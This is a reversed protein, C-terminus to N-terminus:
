NFGEMQERKTRDIQRALELADLPENNYINIVDGESNNVNMTKDFGKDDFQTQGSMGVYAFNNYGYLSNMSLMVDKTERLTNKMQFLLDNFNSFVNFLNDYTEKLNTFFDLSKSNVNSVNNSINVDSELSPVDVDSIKDIDKQIANIALPMAASVGESIGSPIWHGVENRFVRSPSNIGLASKAGDVIGSFFSNIKGKFWGAMANVGDWVGRVIDKGISLMKGPISKATSVIADIMNNVAQRGKTPLDTVFQQAATLANSIFERVRGPLRTFFEVVRSLFDSGAQRGKDAVDTAWSSINNYASRIFELIKGPLQIFFEIVAGLFDSGMQKAKEYTEVAWLGISTITEGLFFGIKYPLEEFWLIIAEIGAAIREPVSAFFDLIGNWADVFFQKIGEWIEGFFEAIPGWFANWKEKFQAFFEVVVDVITQVLTGLISVLANWTDEFIGKVAEWLACWDGTFVATLIDIVGTIMNGAWEIIDVIISWAGEFIPALLACLNNWEMKILQIIPQVSEWLANFSEMFRDVFDGVVKKLRDWTDTMSQRFEENNDWLNKFALVLAAIIGIIIGIPGALATLAAKFIGVKGTAAAVVTNKTGFLGTLSSLGKGVAGFLSVIPTLMKILSGLIILVPGAAAAYMVMQGISALQAEDMGQLSVSVNEIWAALNNLMGDASNQVAEFIAPLMKFVDTIAVVIRQLTGGKESMNSTIDAWANRWSSRMSDLSGHLTGKMEEMLGGFKATSGAIGDTGNAIGDVLMNIADQSSISGESIADRVEQMSMGTKNAIIQLAPIGRTTLQNIDQLMLKGSSSMQGFVTALGEIDKSSGGTAVVADGLTGLIPIISETEIGFARMVRASQVLDPYAFPTTKAFTLMDDLFSQAEQASGLMTTFALESQQMFLNFEIGTKAATGAIGLLPTTVGLTLKKGLSVFSDGVATLMGNVRSTVDGSMNSIDDNAKKIGRGFKTVDLDLYGIATGLNVAM